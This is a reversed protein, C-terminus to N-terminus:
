STLVGRGAGRDRPVPRARGALPGRLEKVSSGGARGSISNRWGIPVALHSTTCRARAPWTLYDLRTMMGAEAHYANHCHVMWRGPNDALLDVEFGVMPPVLITDKRPGAGGAPGLQFTRGHVHLPHSMMSANRLRLRTTEGARVTLPETDDYTRGNITWM